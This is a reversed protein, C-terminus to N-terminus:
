TTREYVWTEIDAPNFRLRNSIKLSPLEGRRALRYVLTRSVQLANATQEVTWLGLFEESATEDSACSTTNLTSM